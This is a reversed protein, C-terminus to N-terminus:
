PITIELRLTGITEGPLRLDLSGAAPSEAFVHGDCFVTNGRAKHRFHVTPWLEDFYYFEELMPHDPSAPAQFDNVQAADAFLATETPRSIMTMSRDELHINYGYGYAAGTAKLKYITDAYNLSPCIEVGRGQLYPYLVGFAPDFDRQGEAGPKIWGFWYTFGGNTAGALYRFSKEDNDAWYMQAALGLQRLNSVCRTRRGQEKSSALAPLLLACLTAIIAIVVLLEILTFASPASDGVALDPKRPSRRCSAAKAAGHRLTLAGSNPPTRLRLAAFGFRHTVATWPKAERNM